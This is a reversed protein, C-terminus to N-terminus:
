FIKSITGCSIQLICQGSVFLSGGLMVKLGFGSTVWKKKEAEAIDVKFILGGPFRCSIGGCTCSMCGEGGYTSLQSSILM